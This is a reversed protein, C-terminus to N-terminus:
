DLATIADYKKPEFSCPSQFFGEERRSGSEYVLSQVAKDDQYNLDYSYSGASKWEEIIFNM